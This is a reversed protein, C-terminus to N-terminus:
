RIIVKEITFYVKESEIDDGNAENEEYEKIAKNWEQIQDKSYMEEGEVLCYGLKNFAYIVREDVGIESLMESINRKYESESIRLTLPMLPNDGAIDRGMIAKFRSNEKDLIEQIESTIPILGDEKISKPLCCKKYKNGSGCPCLDNRSINMSM